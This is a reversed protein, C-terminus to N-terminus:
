TLSKTPDNWFCRPTMTVYLSFILIFVAILCWFHSLHDKRQRWLPGTLFFLILIHLKNSTHFHLLFMKIFINYFSLKSNFLFIIFAVLNGEKFITLVYVTYTVVNFVSFFCSSTCVCFTILHNDTSKWKRARPWDKNESNELIFM